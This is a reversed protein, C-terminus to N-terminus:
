QCINSLCYEYKKARVNIDPYIYYFLNLGVVGERIIQLLPCQPCKLTGIHNLLVLKAKQFSKMSLAKLGKRDYCSANKTHELGDLMWREVEGECINHFSESIYVQLRSSYLYLSEM